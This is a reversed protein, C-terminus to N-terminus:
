DFKGFTVQNTKQQREDFSAQITNYPNAHNFNWLPDIYYNFGAVAALPLLILSIAIILWKKYVDM